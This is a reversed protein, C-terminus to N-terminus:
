AEPTGEPLPEAEFDIETQTGTQVNFYEYTETVHMNFSANVDYTVPFGTNKDIYFTEVMDYVTSSGKKPRELSEVTVIYVQWTKNDRGHTVAGEGIQISKLELYTITNNKHPYSREVESGEGSWGDLLEKLQSVRVGLIDHYQNLLDIQAQMPPIEVIIWEKNKRDWMFQKFKQAGHDSLIVGGFMREGTVDLTNTNVLEWLEVKRQQGQHWVKNGWTEFYYNETDSAKNVLERVTKLLDPDPEASNLGESSSGNAQEKTDQQAESAQEEPEAEDEGSPIFDEAELGELEEELKSMVDDLQERGSNKKGCGTFFISILLILVIFTVKRKM